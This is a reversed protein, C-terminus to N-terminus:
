AAAHGMPRAAAALAEAKMPRPGGFLQGQGYLVGFGFIQALRTEDDIAGVILTLGMEALHRCIDGAPVTGGSTPLGDLFVNADLKVFAFGHSRLGAFDMDLDTVAQLAFRFGLDRMDDIMAWDRRSFRRVDSQALTLVLQGTFADRQSYAATFERIFQDHTLSGGDVESFVAGNKGRERLRRAVQATRALRTSDLVPLLGTDRLTELMGETDLASGDAGRLRLSVEYHRPRHDELGLIAELLVDARRANIAEALAALRAHMPGVPPPAPPAAALEPAAGASPPTPAVARRGFPQARAADRMTDAAVRLADLSSEIGPAGAKAEGKDAANVEDALKKILSQIMEVDYDRPGPQGAVAAASSAPMELRPEALREAAPPPMSAAPHAPLPLEPASAPRYSWFDAQAQSPPAAAPPPAASPIAGRQGDEQKLSAALAAGIEAERRSMPRDGPDRQAREHAAFNQEGSGAENRPREFSPAPRPAESEAALPPEPVASAAPAPAVRRGFPPPPTGTDPAAPHAEASGAPQFEGVSPVPQAPAGPHSHPAAGSQVGSQIGLQAAPALPPAGTARVHEPRPMQGGRGTGRLRHLEVGLRGMERELQVVRRGRHRAAHAFLFTTLLLLGSLVATVPEAGAQHLLVGAALAVIAMAPIALKEPLASHKREDPRTETKEIATM